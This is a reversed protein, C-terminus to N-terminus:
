DEIIEILDPLTTENVAYAPVRLTDIVEQILKESATGDSNEEFYALPIKIYKM